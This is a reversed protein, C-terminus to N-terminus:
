KGTWLSCACRTSENEREFHAHAVLIRENTRKNILGSNTNDCQTHAHAVTTETDQEPDKWKTCEFDYIEHVYGLFENKTHSIPFFFFQSM